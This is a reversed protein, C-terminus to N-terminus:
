SRHARRRSSVRRIATGGVLDAGLAAIRGTRYTTIKRSVCETCLTVAVSTLLALLDASPRGTPTSGAVGAIARVPSVDPPLGHPCRFGARPACRPRATRRAPGCEARPSGGPARRGPAPRRLAPRNASRRHRAGGLLTTDVRGVGVPPHLEAAVPRRLGGLQAPHAAIGARRPRSVVLDPESGHRGAGRGVGHVPLVGVDGAGPGPVGVAPVPSLARGLVDDVRVCRGALPGAPVEVAPQGERRSQRTGPVEQLEREPIQSRCTRTRNVSSQSRYRTSSPSGSSTVIRPSRCTSVGPTGTSM